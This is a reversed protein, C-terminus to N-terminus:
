TYNKNTWGSEAGIATHIGKAFTDTTTKVDLQFSGTNFRIDTIFTYTGDLGAAGNVNYGGVVNLIGGSDLTAKTTGSIVLNIESAVLALEDFATGGANQGQIQSGGTSRMYLNDTTLIAGNSDVQFVTTGDNVLALMNQPDTSGTYEAYILTNAGTNSNQITLNGDELLGFNDSSTLADIGDHALFRGGNPSAAIMQAGAYSGATDYDIWLARYSTSVPKRYIGITQSAGEIVVGEGADISQISGGAITLGSAATYTMHKAAEGVFFEGSGGNNQIRIPWGAAATSYMGIFNPSVYVGTVAPTDDDEFRTPINAIDTAWAAQNQTALSGQGTIAQATNDATVDADTYTVALSGANISSANLHIVNCLDADITGTQLYGGDIVTHGYTLSINRIGDAESHLNGVLFYYYTADEDVIRQTADVIVKNQNSSYSTKSCRAYIYYATSDTLGTQVNDYISWTRIVSDITFHVLGGATTHFETTTGNYNPEFVVEQLIFDRSKGGVSILGTDISEPTIKETYYYGETDFVMTVLEQASRRNAKTRNINSLNNFTILQKSENSQAYQRQAITVEAHEALEIEYREPYLISRSLKIIRLLGSMGLDTDAVTIYDGIKLDIGNTRFYIPDTTVSYTVRPDSNATIYETAKVTLESEATAIYSAPMTIDVIVYEDGISPNLSVSPLEVSQKDFLYPIIVFTTSGNDYSEIEFEYGALDGTNFVLKASVGDILYSNVDFDMGSDSFTDTTAGIGTITGTRHPYIEDFLITHEIVGYSAVNNELYGPAPLELRFAGYASGINRDSGYAWLRTVINKASVTQRSIGRLGSRYEFSLGTDTGTTDTFNMVRKQYYAECTFEECLRSIVAACNETSFALHKTTADSADIVGKTWTLPTSYIRALNTIVLDVYDDLTGVFDFDSEDNLMFQVKGFDYYQSEFVCSYIFSNTGSKEISPLQNLNYVINEYRIYDGIQLDLAEKVVFRGQITNEGYFRQHLRVNEDIKLQLNVNSVRYINLTM